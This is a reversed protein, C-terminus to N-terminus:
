FHLALIVGYTRPPLFTGSITGTGPAYYSSNTAYTLNTWKLNNFVNNSYLTATWRCGNPVWKTSTYAFSLDFTWYDPAGPMVFENATDQLLVQKRAKGTYFVTGAMSLFDTGLYWTRNYTANGRFGRGGFRDGSRDNNNSALYASDVRGWLPEFDRLMAAAVNYNKYRNISYAATASITDNPSLLWMVNMNYGKQEASGISIPGYMYEEYDAQTVTSGTLPVCQGPTGTEGYGGEEVPATQPTICKYATVWDNYNKYDYLYATANVQLRNNFLRSKLGAEYANLVEPPIARGDRTVNVTKVGKSFQIYPMINESASWSVNAKYSSYDYDYTHYAWMDPDLYRPYVLNYNDEDRYGAGYTYGIYDKTDWTHRYGGTFNINAFPVWSAQGFLAKEKLTIDNYANEYLYVNAKVQDDMYMGGIIWETSDGGSVSTKSALRAELNFSSSDTYSDTAVLSQVAAPMLMVQTYYPDNAGRTPVRNQILYSTGPGGGTPPRKAPTIIGTNPDYTEAAFLTGGVVTGVPFLGPAFNLIWKKHENFDRYGAQITAYAWDFEYDYTASIGLSDNNTFQDRLDVDGIWWKVGYPSYVAGGRAYPQVSQPLNQWGPNEVIELDGFVDLYVGTSSGGKNKTKDTDVTVNLSQRDTPEWRMSLRIGWMDQTSLNADDYGDRTIARGALRFALKDNAPVNLAVESRIRGYNGFELQVNGGFGGVDPRKSVMNMSGATSGRGQLTGQPGKLMEVRELDYFKGELSNSRTLMVGDLQVAVTTEATNNWFNTEVDRINIRLMGSTGEINLDPMMKDLEEIQTINLRALDDPRAVSIDMPIKQLEAERKEATVVIEELQFEDPDKKEDRALV